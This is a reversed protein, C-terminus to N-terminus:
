HAVQKALSFRPEPKVGSLLNNIFEMITERTKAQKEAPYCDFHIKSSHNSDTYEKEEVDLELEMQHVWCHPLHEIFKVEQRLRIITSMLYDQTNPVWVRMKLREMLRQLNKSPPRLKPETPPHLREQLIRPRQALELLREVM